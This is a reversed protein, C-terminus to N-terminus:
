VPNDDPGDGDPVDPAPLNPIRLLLDRVRREFGAAEDELHKEREGMSRSESALGDARATDGARRAAGVERSLENIRARLQDREGAVRRRAEDLDVLQDIDAPDVRKRSLAAKVGDPDSRVLRIDIM